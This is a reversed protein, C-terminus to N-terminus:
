HWEGGLEILLVGAAILAVGAGMAWTFPDGFLLRALAATLAVGSAAWVGYAVGVPMGLRLVQSLLAFAGLYGMAVPALWVLRTLGDSARLALTAGVECVIAGTLLLWPIVDPSRDDTSGTM